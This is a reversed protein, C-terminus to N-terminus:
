SSACINYIYINAFKYDNFAERDIGTPLAGIYLESFGKRGRRM